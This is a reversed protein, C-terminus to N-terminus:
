ADPVAFVVINDSYHHAQPDFTGGCTVLVLRPSGVSRFVSAPLATKPYSRVAAVTYRLPTGARDDLQLAAGIPLRLVSAMVGAGRQRTDIHGALVVSGSAAGPVASGVWWGLRDPDEPLDLSGAGDTGVPVVPARVHLTPVVFAVPPLDLPTLPLPVHSPGGPRPSPKPRPPAEQLV